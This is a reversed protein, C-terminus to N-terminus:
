EHVTLKINFGAKSIFAETDIFFYNLYATVDHTGAPIDELLKISQIHQGPRIAASRAICRDGLYIEAQQIVDNEKVNEVMWSGLDGSRGSGFTAHSSLTATVMLQQSQLDRLIQEHTRGQYDGGIAEGTDPDLTVSPAQVAPSPDREPLQWLATVAIGILLLLLLILGLRKKKSRKTEKNKTM